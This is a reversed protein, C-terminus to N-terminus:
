QVNFNMIENLGILVLNPNVFIDSDFKKAFFDADGGTLTTRIGKYKQKIREIFSEIELLTGITAGNQLAEETTEGLLQDLSGRKVLPLRATYDNMSKLRLEVGPSINGGVFLKSKLIVDFTICTGIDIVCHDLEPELANAGVVAAIRDRGLTDPTKYGIEIPLKTSTNLVLLHYNRDLHHMISKPLKGSAGVIVKEFDYKKKIEKILSVYIKQVVDKHLVKNNDVIALKAFSNGIDICLNM